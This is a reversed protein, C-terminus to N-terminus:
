SQALIFPDTSSGTGSTINITSKLYVTPYVGLATTVDFGIVSTGNDIAFVSDSSEGHTSLSWMYDSKAYGTM